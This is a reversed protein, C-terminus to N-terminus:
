VQIELGSVHRRVRWRALWALGANLAVLGALLTVVRAPTRYAVHLLMPLFIGILSVLLMMLMVNRAHSGRKAPQTLPLQPMVCAEALMSAHTLLSLTVLLIALHGWHTFFFALVGGVVLLYPAVFYLLVFENMAFVLRAPDVPAAYFIWSAKFADSNSLAQKLMAPFLLVAFYYIQPESAGGELFPDVVSSHRVGAVLHVITLPLIGLVGLRFKMDHRFLGRVVLALARREGDRFWLALLGDGRARVPGAATGSPSAALLALRDAYDLSVRGAVMSVSAALLLLTGGALAVHIPQALGMAMHLYSAFWAGPNVLLWGDAPLPATVFDRQSLVQPMLFWSGYLVFMVGLQLYGLTRRLRAIPVWRLLLVYFGIAWFATTTSSVLLALLIALAPLLGGWSPAFLAVALPFLGLAFTMSWVYVLVSTMRAAFFTRSSVPQYGLLRYDDPSLVISHFELLLSSGVCFIVYAFLVTAGIFRSAIFALAAAIFLGMFGFSVLLGVFSGAGHRGARKRGSSQLMVGGTRMDVRLATRVLARWQIGDVGAAGLLRDIM